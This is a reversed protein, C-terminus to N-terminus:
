TREPRLFNHNRVVEPGKYSVTLITEETEELGQEALSKCIKM